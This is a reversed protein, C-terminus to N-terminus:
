NDPLPLRRLIPRRILYLKRYLTLLEEVAQRRTEM